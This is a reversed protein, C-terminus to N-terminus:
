MNIYRGKGEIVKVLRDDMSNTLNDIEEPAVEAFISKIAEWLDLKNRYQKGGEYLKRKLISWVNEIPNLDPSSAPWEMIRDGKIRKGELFQKTLRSAHSPANDHMFTCKTKFSRPQAKYWQLFTKELFACYSVSNLKVGEDVKFPGIITRHVIGAWIMVGGGGQQRKMRTPAEEGDLVWGKAWGDPGDLTVRCEDTFIVNKFDIKMYQRAWKVRKVMNVSSIPPQSSSKKVSSVKRLIRCRKDRKVNDIGAMEFIQRSSRLPNKHVIQKLRRLDRPSTDKFGKGSRTKRTQNINEVMKKITRHDRGLKKAIELTPVGDGLFKTIKQKELNTIDKAKGM